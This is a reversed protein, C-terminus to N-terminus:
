RVAHGLRVRRFPKEIRIGKQVLYRDRLFLRLYEKADEYDMGQQTALHFFDSFQFSDPLHELFTLARSPLLVVDTTKEDVPLEIDQALRILTAEERLKQNEVLLLEHEQQLRELEQELRDLVAPMKIRLPEKLAKAREHTINM